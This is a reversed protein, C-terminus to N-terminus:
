YPRERLDFAYLVRSLLVAGVFFIAVGSAIAAATLSLPIRCALLPFLAEPVQDLGLAPSGSRLGLRRKVFSSFLDGVMALAGIIAGIRWDLGLLIAGGSAVLIALVVGRITKSPGFLPLGDVFERNGDIPYSWRGGLAKATVAPTGNALLLLVLLKLMLVLSM